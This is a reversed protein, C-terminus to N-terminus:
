TAPAAPPIKLLVLAPTVQFGMKSSCGLTEIPAMAM